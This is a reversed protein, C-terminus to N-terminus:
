VLLLLLIIHYNSWVSLHGELLALTAPSALGAETTAAPAWAALAALPVGPRQSGVIEGWRLQWGQTLNRPGM